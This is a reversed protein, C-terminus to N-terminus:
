KRGTNVQSTLWNHRFAKAQKSLKLGAAEYPIVELQPDEALKIMAEKPKGIRTIFTIEVQDGPKHAALAKSLDGSASIKKGDLTQIIDERNLGAQYLPSGAFTNTGIVAANNRFILPTLGLSAKSANTKRLLFGAQALLTQYDALAQGYIHQRFFAAAFKPDRTLAGLTNELDTLTYPIEPQGHKQWLAQMYHDLTINKFKSRLTLDLALGIVSGFPYYSIYTNIRNVPDISQAADVFPAQYSMQVPSFYRHGPSNLVHNLEASINQAYEAATNVGSRCLILDGYYSTFGEAFWLEGSMNAEAFNFPELSKPRLREVNWSHFYEHSLTSLHNNVNSELPQSSTIFTSNRHEMGDGTAQLGYCALFTYTGFDYDPFQGFVAGAEAVIKKAKATYDAFANDGDPGYLAIQITKSQGPLQWESFQLSSIEVPSDMLYQLHPASYTNSATEKKLQTAIQWNKGTPLNFQVLRPREDLGVGYMLTAPMNLHVHEESIGNYTGDARDGFLTYTIIVTGDHNAVDWQHPNPRSLTIEQGQGNYARVQYVNKAFEHLAYRGPSSRAMRFSVSGAPLDAFIVKIEAEHHVASPFSLAYSIPKQAAAALQFISFILVLFSRALTM